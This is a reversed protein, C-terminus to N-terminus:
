LEETLKGNTTEYTDYQERIPDAGAFLTLAMLSLFFLFTFVLMKYVLGKEHNLHMFILAVLSSKVGAIALGVVFDAPTPGPPGFDLWPVLGLALTICTFVCLAIFVALYSKKHKAWDHTSEAM